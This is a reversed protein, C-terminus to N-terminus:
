SKEVEPLVGDLLAKCDGSVKVGAEANRVTNVSVGARAALEVQSLGRATRRERLGVVERRVIEIRRQFAGTTVGEYEEIFGQALPMDLARCLKHITPPKAMTTNFELKHITAASVGSKRSLEAVTLKRYLRWDQLYPLKMEVNGFAIQEEKWTAQM